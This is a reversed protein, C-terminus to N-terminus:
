WGLIVHIARLWDGGYLILQGTKTGIIRPQHGCRAATQRATIGSGNNAIEFGLFDGSHTIGFIPPACLTAIKTQSFRGM